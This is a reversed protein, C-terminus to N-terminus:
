VLFFYMKFDFFTQMSGGLIHRRIGVERVFLMFLSLGNYSGDLSGRDLANQCFFSTKYFFLLFILVM